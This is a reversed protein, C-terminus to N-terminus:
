DYYPNRIHHLCSINIHLSHQWAALILPGLIDWLKKLYINSMGNHDPTTARTPKLTEWLQQLTIPSHVNNECVESVTFMNELFPDDIQIQKGSNYLKTYFTTVHDRICDEAMIVEGIINFQTM